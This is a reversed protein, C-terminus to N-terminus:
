SLYGHELRSALLSKNEGKIDIPPMEKGYVSLGFSPRNSLLSAMSQWCFSISGKFECILATLRYCNIVYNTIHRNLGYTQRNTEVKDRSCSQLNKYNKEPLYLVM